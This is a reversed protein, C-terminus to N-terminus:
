DDIVSCQVMPSPRGTIMIMNVSEIHEITDLHCGNSGKVGLM